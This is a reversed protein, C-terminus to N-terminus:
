KVSDWGGGCGFVEGRDARGGGEGEGEQAVVGRDARSPRGRREGTQGDSRMVEILPSLVPDVVIIAHPLVPM